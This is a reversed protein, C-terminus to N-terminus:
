GWLAGFGGFVLTARRTRPDVRYTGPATPSSGCAGNPFAIVADGTATWGLAVTDASPDHGVPRLRSGEANAFYAVPVECEATWQLLLTRGDPSREVSSWHGVFSPAGGYKGVPGLVKRGRLYVVSADRKPSYPGGCIVYPAPGPHCGSRTSPWDPRPPVIRRLGHEGLAFARRGRAVVVERTPGPGYLSVVRFGSLHGLVHGRLDRLVIGGVRKGVFGQRPLSLQAPDLERGPLAAGGVVGAALILGLARV